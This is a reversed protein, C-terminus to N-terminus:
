SLWMLIGESFTDEQKRLTFCGIGAEEASPSTEGKMKLATLAKTRYRGGTRLMQQAKNNNNLQGTTDSEKCCRPNCCM